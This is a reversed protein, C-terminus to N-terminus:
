FRWTYNRNWKNAAKCSTSCARAEVSLLFAAKQTPWKNCLKISWIRATSTTHPKSTAGDLSSAWFVWQRFDRGCLTRGLTNLASTSWQDLSTSTVLNFCKKQIWDERTRKARRWIYDSFTLTSISIPTLSPMSPKCARKSNPLLPQLLIKTTHLNQMPSGDKNNYANVLRLTTLLIMSKKVCTCNKQKSPPLLKFSSAPSGWSTTAWSKSKHHKRPTDWVPSTLLAERRRTAAPM